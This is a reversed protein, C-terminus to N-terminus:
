RQREGPSIRQLRAHPYSKPSGRRAHADKLVQLERAHKDASDGIIMALILLILLILMIQIVIVIMMIIMIIIILILIIIIMVLMIIIIMMMITM